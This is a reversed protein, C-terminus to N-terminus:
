DVQAEGLPQVPLMASLAARLDAPLPSEFTLSRGDPHGIRLSRAHLFLRGGGLLAVLAPPRAAEGGYRDDGVVPHGIAAFHVRIQHTRGTDLRAEVLTAPVPEAFRGEVAYETRAARGAPTVAMRDPRRTSRGVPAEVVGREEGVLGAFLAVYRREAEHRRFQASLSRFADPSRAVVLLGSTGKDLRHVIGPRAPDGGVREPLGALDPFRALLGDVLTGHAHGAGAHVVLGAPKDVVILDDDAHLVGFAVGRDAVPGPAPEAPLEARLRQGARLVTSRARVPDGDVWVSGAAVADAAARRSVGTLISLVRDVRQDGLAGPVVVEVLGDPAAGSM